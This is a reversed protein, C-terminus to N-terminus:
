KKILRKLKRIKNKLYNIKIIEIEKYREIYFTSDRGQPMLHYIKVDTNNYVTKINYICYIKDFTTHKCFVYDKYDTYSFSLHKNYENESLKRIKVKDGIKLINGKADKYENM